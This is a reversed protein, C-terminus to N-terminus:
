PRRIAQAFRDARAGLANVDFGFEFIGTNFPIIYFRLMGDRWVDGDHELIPAQINQPKKEFVKIGVYLATESRLLYVQTKESLKKALSQILKISNKLSMLQLCSTGLTKGDITSADDLGIRKTTARLQYKSFDQKATGKDVQASVIPVSIYCCYARFNPGM